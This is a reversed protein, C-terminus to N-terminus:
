NETNLISNPNSSLELNIYPEQQKQTNISLNKKNKKNKTLSKFDNFSNSNLNSKNPSLQTLKEKQEKNLIQNQTQNQNEISQRDSILKNRLQYLPNKNQQNKIKKQLIQLNIGAKRTIKEYWKQEKKDTIQLNEPQILTDLQNEFSDLQLELKNLNQKSQDVNKQWTEEQSFFQEFKFIKKEQYLKDLFRNIINYRQFLQKDEQLQKQEQKSILDKEVNLKQLYIQHNKRNYRLIQIIEDAVKNNLQNYRAQIERLYFLLTTDIKEIKLSKHLSIINAQLSAIQEAESIVIDMNKNLNQNSHQLKSKNLQKIQKYMTQFQQDKLLNTEQLIELSKKRPVIKQNKFPSQSKHFSNLLSNQNLNQNKLNIENNKNNKENEQPLIIITTRKRQNNNLNLEPYTITSLREQSLMYEEQKLLQPNLIKKYKKQLKRFNSPSEFSSNQSYIQIQSKQPIKSNIKPPHQNKQTNIILKLKNKSQFQLKKDNKNNNQNNNINKNDKDNDIDENKVQQDNQNKKDQINQNPTSETQTQNLKQNLLIQTQNNIQIQNTKSKNTNLKSSNLNFNQCNTKSTLNTETQNLKQIQLKLLKKEFNKQQTINRQTSQSNMNTKSTEFDLTSNLNYSESTAQQQQLQQQQKQEQNKNDQQLNEQPTIQINYFLNINKPSQNKKPSISNVQYQQQQQQKQQKKQLHFYLQKSRQNLNQNQNNTSINQKLTSKLSQQSILSNQSNQMAYSYNLYGKPSGQLSTHYSTNNSNLLQNRQFYSYLLVKNNIKQKKQYDQKIQKLIENTAINEPNKKKLFKQNLKKLQKIQTKQENKEEDQQWITLPKQNQLSENLSNYSNNNNQINNKFYINENSKNQSILKKKLYDQKEDIKKMSNRTQKQLKKQKLIMYIAKNKKEQDDISNNLNKFIQPIFIILLIIQMKTQEQMESLIKQEIYSDSFQFQSENLDIEIDSEEQQLDLFDTQNDKSDQFVSKRLNQQTKRTPSLVFFYAQNSTTSNSSHSSNETKYNNFQNKTQQKQQQQQKQYIQFNTQIKQKKQLKLQQIKEYILVQRKLKIIQSLKENKQEELKQQHLSYLFRTELIEKQDRNKPIQDSSKYGLFRYYGTCEEGIEDVNLNQAIRNKKIQEYVREKEENFEPSKMWNRHKQNKVTKQHNKQSKLVNKSDEILGSCLNQASDFIQELQYLSKIKEKNQKKLSFNSENLLFNQSQNRSKRQNQSQNKYQNQSLNQNQNQSLNQSQNQNQRIRQSNLNILQQYSTALKSKLNNLEIQNFKFNKIIKKFKKQNTKQNKKQNNIIQQRILHALKEQQNYQSQTKEQQDEILTEQRNIKIQQAYYKNIKNFDRERDEIIRDLDGFNQIDKQSNIKEQEKEQYKSNLAQTKSKVSMFDKVNAVALAERPTM